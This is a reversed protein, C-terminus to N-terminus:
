QDIEKLNSHELHHEWQGAAWGDQWDILGDEDFEAGNYFDQYGREYNTMVNEGLCNPIYKFMDDIYKKAKM